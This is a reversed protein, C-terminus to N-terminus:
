RQRAKWNEYSIIFATPDGTRYFIARSDFTARLMRAYRRRSTNVERRMIDEFLDKM